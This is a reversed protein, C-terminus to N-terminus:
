INMSSSDNDDHIGIWCYGEGVLVTKDMFSAATIHSTEGIYVYNKKNPQYFSYFASGEKNNYKKKQEKEELTFFSFLRPQFHIHMSREGGDLEIAKRIRWIYNPALMDDSDINTQIDYKELGEINDWTTLCSWFKNPKRGLWGDKMYSPIVGMKKFIDAHAKNCLVSIDFDRVTQRELRPLCIARYTALRKEFRPDDEAYLMRTIVVQNM